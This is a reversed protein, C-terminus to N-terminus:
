GPEGEAYRHALDSAIAERTMPATINESAILPLSEDFWRHHAKLIERVKYTIERYSM